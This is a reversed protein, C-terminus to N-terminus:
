SRRSLRRAVVAFGVMVLLGAIGLLLARLWQVVFGSLAGAAITPKITAGDFWLGVAASGYLIALAVGTGVLMRLIRRDGAAGAAFLVMLWAVILPAIRGTVLLEFQFRWSALGPEFSGQSTFLQLTQDLAILGAGLYAIPLLVAPDLGRVAASATM